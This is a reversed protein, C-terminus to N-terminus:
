DHRLIISQTIYLLKKIELYFTKFPQEYAWEHALRNESLYTETQLGSTCKESILACVLEKFRLLGIM